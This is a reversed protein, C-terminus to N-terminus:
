ISYHYKDDVHFQRKNLLFDAHLTRQISLCLHRTHVHRYGLMDDSVFFFSPPTVLYLPRTGAQLITTARQYYNRFVDRTLTDRMYM